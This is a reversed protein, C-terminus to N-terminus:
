KCHPSFNETDGRFCLIYYTGVDAISNAFAASLSYVTASVTPEVGRVGFDDM